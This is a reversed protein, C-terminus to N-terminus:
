QKVIKQKAIPQGNETVVVLYFGQSVESMNISSSGVSTLQQETVLNGQLNYIKVNVRGTTTNVNVMLHDQVLSPYVQVLAKEAELTKSLEESKNRANGRRRKHKRSSKKHLKSFWELAYQHGLIRGDEHIMGTFPPVITDQHYEVLKVKRSGNKRMTKRVIEVNELGMLEDHRSFYLHIPAKTKAEWDYVDQERLMDAFPHEPTLSELFDDQLVASLDMPPILAFTEWLGLNEIYEPLLSDYPAKFVESLDNYLGGYIDQYSILFLPIILASGLRGGEAITNLMENSVNNLGNIPVSGKVKFEKGLRNETIYKHLSMTAHGGQSFGSMFIEKTIKKGTEELLLERSARILDVCNEATKEVHHYAFPGPEDGLGLYDAISVIFGNGGYLAGHGNHRQYINRSPAEWRSIITGHQVSVYPTRKTIEIQPVYVAGSAIRPNGYVDLTHYLVKYSQLENLEMGEPSFGESILLEQLEEVTYYEMPEYSVLTQGCVITNLALVAVIALASNFFLRKM